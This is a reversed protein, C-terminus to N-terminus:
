LRTVDAAILLGGVLSAAGSANPDPIYGSLVQQSRIYGNGVAVGDNLFTAGEADTELYERSNSMYAALLRGTPCPLTHSPLGEDNPHVDPVKTIGLINLANSSSSYGLQGDQTYVRLGYEDRYDTLNKSVDFVYWDTNVDIEAIFTLKNLNSSRHGDICYVARGATHPRIFVLSSPTLQVPVVTQVSWDYGNGRVLVTGKAKLVINQAESYIQTQGNDGTVRLGFM